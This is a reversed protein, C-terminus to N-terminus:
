QENAPEPVLKRIPVSPYDACHLDGETTARHVAKVCRWSNDGGEYVFVDGDADRYFEGVEYPPTITINPVANPWIQHCYGDAVIELWGDHHYGNVIADFEFRLKTGTKLKDM